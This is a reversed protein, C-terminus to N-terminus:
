VHVTHSTTQMHVHKNGRWSHWLAGCTLFMDVCTLVGMCDLVCTPLHNYHIRADRSVCGENPFRNTVINSITAFTPHTEWNAYRWEARCLNGSDPMNWTDNRWVFVFMFATNRHIDAGAGWHVSVGQRWFKLGRMHSTIGLRRLMRCRGIVNIFTWCARHRVDIIM